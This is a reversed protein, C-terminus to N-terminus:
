LTGAVSGSDPDVTGPTRQPISRLLQYNTVFLLRLGCTGSTTSPVARWILLMVGLHALRHGM